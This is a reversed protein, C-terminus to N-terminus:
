SANNTLLLSHLLADLYTVADFKVWFSYKAYILRFVATESSVDQVQFVINEVKKLLWKM